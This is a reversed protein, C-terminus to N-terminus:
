ARLRYLAHPLGARLFDREYTFGAKEMVRRSAANAPLTFCVLQELELRGFAEDVAQLAIRTALGRGWLASAVAYQVEVEPRGDIVTRWLGGRAAPREGLRYLWPGFGHAEWHTVDAELMALSRARTRGGDRAAPWLSAAVRPDGFVACPVDLHKLEPKLRSLRGAPPPDPPKASV